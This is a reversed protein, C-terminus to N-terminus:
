TKIIKTTVAFPQMNNHATGSGTSGTTGFQNVSVNAGAVFNIFLNETGTLTTLPAGGSPTPTHTHAPMEGVSLTHSEAGGTGALTRATLGSGTGSGIAARGRLDPVNFTTTGNGAGWTTSIVAFLAAYTTRSVASGDCALWGTPVAGAAFDLISGVPCVYNLGSTTSDIWVFKSNGSFNVPANGNSSATVTTRALTTSTVLTGLGCEWTSASTDEIVYYVTDNTGLVSSFTRFGAVAGALTVTGTGPTTTTERVRDYFYAM